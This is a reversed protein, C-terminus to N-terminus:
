AGVERMAGHLGGCSRWVDGFDGSRHWEASASRGRAPPRRGDRLGALRHGVDQALGAVPDLAHGAGDFGQLQEFPSLKSTTMVSRCIGPM